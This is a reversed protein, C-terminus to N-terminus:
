ISEFLNLDVSTSRLVQSCTAYPVDPGGADVNVSYNFYLISYKKSSPHVMISQIQLPCYALKPYQMRM